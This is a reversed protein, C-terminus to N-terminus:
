VLQFALELHKQNRKPALMKLTLIMMSQLGQPGILLSSVYWDAENPHTRFSKSWISVNSLQEGRIRTKQQTGKEDCM